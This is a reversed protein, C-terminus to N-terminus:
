TDSETPRSLEQPAVWAMVTRLYLYGFYLLTSFGVLAAGQLGSFIMLRGLAQATLLPDDGMDLLTGMSLVADLLRFLRYTIYLQVFGYVVGSLSLLTTVLYFWRSPPPIRKM